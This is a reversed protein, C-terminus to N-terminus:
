ERSKLSDVGGRVNDGQLNRHGVLDLVGIAHDLEVAVRRLSPMPVENAQKAVRQRPPQKM